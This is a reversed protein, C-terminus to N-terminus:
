IGDKPFLLSLHLIPYVKEPLIASELSCNWIYRICNLPAEVLSSVYYLLAIFLSTALSNTAKINM